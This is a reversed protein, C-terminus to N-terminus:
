RELEDWADCRHARLSKSLRSKGTMAVLESQAEQLLRSVHALARGVWVAALGATVPFKPLATGQWGRPALGGGRRCVQSGEATGGGVYPHQHRGEGTPSRLSVANVASGQHARGRLVSLGLDSCAILSDCILVLELYAM